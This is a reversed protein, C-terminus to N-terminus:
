SHSQARANTNKTEKEAFRENQKKKLITLAPFSDSDESTEKANEPKKQHKKSTKAHVESDSSQSSDSNEENSCEELLKQSSSFNSIDM